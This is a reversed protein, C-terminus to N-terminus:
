MNKRIRGELQAMKTEQIGILAINNERIVKSAEKKKVVERLGRINNYRLIKM